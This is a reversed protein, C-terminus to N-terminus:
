PKPSPPPPAGTVLPFSSRPRSTKPNAAGSQDRYEEAKSRQAALGLQACASACFGAATNAISGPVATILETLRGPDEQYPQASGQHHTGSKARAFRCPQNGRGGSPAQLVPAVGRDPHQAFPLATQIRLIKVVM